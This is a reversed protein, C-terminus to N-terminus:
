RASNFRSLYARNPLTEIEAEPFLERLKEETYEDSPPLHGNLNIRRLGVERFLWLGWPANNKQNASFPPEYWLRETSEIPFGNASENSDPVKSLWRLAEHRDMIWKIQGGLWGLFVGLITVLLFLTRLSFRFWRRRPSTPSTTM